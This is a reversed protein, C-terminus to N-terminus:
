NLGPTTKAFGSKFHPNVLDSKCSVVGLSLNKCFWGRTYFKGGSNSRTCGAKPSVMGLTHKTFAGVTFSDGSPPKMFSSGLSFQSYFTTESLWRTSPPKVFGRFHSWGKPTTLCVQYMQIGVEIYTHM